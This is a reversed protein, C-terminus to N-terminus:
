KLLYSVPNVFSDSEDYCILLIIPINRFNTKRIQINNPIQTNPNPIKTGFGYFCITEQQILQLQSKRLGPRTHRQMTKLVFSQYSAFFSFGCLLCCTTPRSLRERSFIAQFTQQM